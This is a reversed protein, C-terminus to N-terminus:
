QDEFKQIYDKAREINRRNQPVDPALRLYERFQRASDDYKAELRFLEGLNFRANYHDPNIRIVERLAAASEVDRDLEALAYALNYYGIASDPDVRIIERFEAVAEALKGQNALVVALGNHADILDPDLRIAERYAAVSETIKREARLTLGLGSYARASAPDLRLAERLEAAADASKGQLRLAEALKTRRSSSEADGALSQRFATEASEPELADMFLDGRVAHADPSDPWLALAADVLEKARQRGARSPARGGVARQETRALAASARAALLKTQHRLAAQPDRAIQAHLQQMGIWAEILDFSADQDTQLAAMRRAAERPDLRARVVARAPARGAAAPQPPAPEDFELLVATYAEVEVAELRLATVDNQRQLRAVAARWAKHQADVLALQMATEPTDGSTTKHEGVVRIDFAGSQAGADAACALVLLSSVLFTCARMHM